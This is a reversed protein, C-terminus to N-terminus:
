EESDDDEEGYWAGQIAYLAAPVSEADTIIEDIEEDTLIGDAMAESALYMLAAIDQFLDGAESLVEAKDEIEGSIDPGGLAEILPYAFRQLQEFSIGGFDM